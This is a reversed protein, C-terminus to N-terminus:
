GASSQRKKRARASERPNTRFRRELLTTRLHRNQVPLPHRNQVPLPHRYVAQRCPDDADSDAEKVGGPDAHKPDLIVRYVHPSDRGNQEEQVYRELYGAKVLREIAEFVTARACGMEDAMKVQSKRCWGLDDTHRGLM